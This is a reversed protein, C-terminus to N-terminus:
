ALALTELQDTKLHSIWCSVMDKDLATGAQTQLYEVAQKKVKTVEGRHFCMFNATRNGIACIRSWTHIEHRTLGVPFGKGDCREHHQYIMFNAEDPLDHSPSFKLFGRLPHGEDVPTKERRHRNPTPSLVDDQRKGIDHLLAGQALAALDDKDTMGLKNALLLSFTCTNIAHTFQSYDHQMVQLLDFVVARTDCVVTALDDGVTATTEALEKRGHNRFSDVLVSRASDRLIEFRETLPLDHNGLVHEKVYDRYSTVDDNSVYLVHIGRRILNQLDNDRLPIGRDKYLRAPAAENPWLYLKFDLADSASLSNIAIPVLDTNSATDVSDGYTIYTVLRLAHFRRQLRDIHLMEM